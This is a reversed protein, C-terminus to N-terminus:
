YKRYYNVHVHEQARTSSAYTRAHMHKNIDTLFLNHMFTVMELNLIISIVRTQRYM